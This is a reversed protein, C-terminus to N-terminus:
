PNIASRRRVPACRQAILFQPIFRQGDKCGSVLGGGIGESPGPVQKGDMRLDLRTKVFLHVPHQLTSRRLGVIKL